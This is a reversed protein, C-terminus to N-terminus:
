LVLMVHLNSSVLVSLCTSIATGNFYNLLKQLVSSIGNILQSIFRIKDQDSFQTIVFSVVLFASGSALGATAATLLGVFTVNLISSVFNYTGTTM